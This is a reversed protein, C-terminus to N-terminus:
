PEVAGRTRTPSRLSCGKASIAASTVSGLVFSGLLTLTGLKGCAKPMLRRVRSVRVELGCWSREPKVKGDYGFAQVREVTALGKGSEM